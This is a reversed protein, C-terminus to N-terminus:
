NRDYFSQILKLIAVVLTALLILQELNVYMVIVEETDPPIIGAGEVCPPLLPYAAVGNPSHGYIIVRLKEKSLRM